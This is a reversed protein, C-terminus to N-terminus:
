GPAHKYCVGFRVTLRWGAAREHGVSRGTACSAVTVRGGGGGTEGGGAEQGESTSEVEWEAERAAAWLWREGQGAKRLNKLPDRRRAVSTEFGRRAAAM